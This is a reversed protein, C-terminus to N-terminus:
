YIMRLWTMLFPTKHHIRVSEPAVVRGSGQKSGKEMLSLEEFFSNAGKPAFEKKYSYVGNQFPERTRPVLCSTVSMLKQLFPPFIHLHIWM